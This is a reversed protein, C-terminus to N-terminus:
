LRSPQPVLDSHRFAVKLRLSGYRCIHRYPLTRVGCAAACATARRKSFPHGCDFRVTTRTVAAIPTTPARPRCENRETRRSAPVAARFAAQVGSATARSTARRTAFPHGCDFRAITKTMAPIPKTPARPRCENREARRSSPAGRPTGLRAFHRPMPQYYDVSQIGVEHVAFGIDTTVALDAWNSQPRGNALRHVVARAAANTALEAHIHCTRCQSWPFEPAQPGM